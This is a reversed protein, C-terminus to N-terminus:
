WAPAKRWTFDRYDNANRPIKQQCLGCKRTPERKAQKTKRPCMLNNSFFHAALSEIAEIAERPEEIKAVSAHRQADFALTISRECGIM